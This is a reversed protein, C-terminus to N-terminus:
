GKQHKGIFFLILFLWRVNRSVPIPPLPNVSLHHVAGKLVSRASTRTRLKAKARLTAGSVGMTGKREHCVHELRYIFNEHFCVSFCFM